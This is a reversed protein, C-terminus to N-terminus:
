GASTLLHRVLYATTTKGNTGTIGLTRMSRSPSDHFLNALVSTARDADKVVVQPLLCAPIKHATVVAVAGRDKADAIFKAGDTKTGGRAVFLDGARVRRSDERVGSVEINPISSLSLKSDLQRLLTHLMM